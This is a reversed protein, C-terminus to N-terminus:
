LRHCFSWWFHQRVFVSMKPPFTINLFFNISNSINECIPLFRFCLSADNGRPSPRGQADHLMSTKRHLLFRSFKTIVCSDQCFVTAPTRHYIPRIYQWKLPFLPFFQMCIITVASTVPRRLRPACLFRHPSMLNFLIINQHNCCTFYASGHPQVWRQSPNIWAQLLHSLSMGPLDAEARARSVPTYDAIASV